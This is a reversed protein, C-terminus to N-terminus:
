INYTSLVKKHLRQNTTHLQESETHGNTFTIRPFWVHLYFYISNSIKINNDIFLFLHSKKNTKQNHGLALPDNM